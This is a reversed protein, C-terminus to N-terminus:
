AWPACYMARAPIRAAWKRLNPGHNKQAVLIGTSISGLLYAIVGTIVYALTVSM